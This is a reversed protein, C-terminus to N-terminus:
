GKSINVNQVYPLKVVEIYDYEAFYLQLNIVPNHLIYDQFDTYIKNIHDTDLNLSKILIAYTEVSTKIKFYPYDIVQYLISDSGTNEKYFLEVKELVEFKNNFLDGMDISRGYIPNFELKDIDGYKIVSILGSKDYKTFKYNCWENNLFDSNYWYEKKYFEPVSWSFQKKIINWKSYQHYHEYIFENSKKLDYNEISIINATILNVTNM